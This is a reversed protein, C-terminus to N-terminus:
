APAPGVPSANKLSIPQPLLTQIVPKPRGPRNAFIEKVAQMM